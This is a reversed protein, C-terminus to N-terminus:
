DRTKLQAQAEPKERPLLELMTCGMDDGMDCANKFDSLANKMKGSRLYAQGRGTMAETYAPDISLAKGFYKQAERYDKKKYHTIGLFCYSKKDEPNLTIAKKFDDIARDYYQRDEQYTLGRSYYLYATEPSLEIARSYDDIAKEHLNTLALANGRNYYARGDNPNMQLVRTFDSIASEYGGNKLHSLGRNYHANILNSDGRGQLLKIASAYYDVAADYQAKEFSHNGLNILRKVAAEDQPSFPTKSAGEDWPVRCSLLFLIVLLISTAAFLKRAM